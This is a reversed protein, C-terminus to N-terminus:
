ISDVLKKLPISNKILAKKIPSLSSHRLLAAKLKAFNM